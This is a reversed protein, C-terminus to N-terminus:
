KFIDKYKLEIIRYDKSLEKLNISKKDGAITIVLPRNGLNEEYFKSINDINFKNLIAIEEARPDQNFGQDKWRKVQEPLQRFSIYNAEMKHLVSIKAMDFKEPKVPFQAILESMAQCGEITKDAQTGLFGYLFGPRRNLKDYSYGAYASYGLSRLERIEQFIVGAMSGGMYENYGGCAVRQELSELPNGLMYFYINSQLFAKNSALFVTPKDYTEISRIHREGPTAHEKKLITSKLASIVEDLSTNGVYTIYGDYQLSQAFVNLLQYGKVAKLEKLSLQTLYPSNAGYVAYNFLASGWEEANNKSMKDENAKEEILNQLKQEDNGPSYLKQACLKLISNLENDFGSISIRLEEDTSYIDMTAGLQQLQLQFENFTQDETGQLNVYKVASELLPNMLDGYNFAINLSFLDNIPNKSAYLTYDESIRQITVNKNFDIQQPEIETVPMCEISRAFTSQSETNKAVVPKWSPKQLKEQKKIGMNSRFILCDDGFYKNALAVLEEKSLNRIREERAYFNNFDQKDMVLTLATQFKGGTSELDTLYDRLYEKKVAEFLANSYNGKKLDDIAAFILAEADEHSQGVIKPVYFFAFMGKELMGYNFAGCSMIKNENNLQDLLGTESSNSLLGSLIDFLYADANQSGETQFGIVGMKVPTENVTQIQHGKFPAVGMRLDTNMSGDENMYKNDTAGNALENKLKGMHKELMPQIEKANFDGVLVLTMNAPVYFQSFFKQMASTQPNKLHKQYGIVPRGYPHDGYAATLADEMFVSVPQDQYMNYEEYVAELESQFLRFVPYRFREAYVKLWKELQNSPFSNHYCTVDNSTFANVGEGGMKSLIVDVENPIAYETAKNSLQNIKLLIENRQAEDTIEHVKDYLVDISDLYVKEADWDITGIQNTGKFMLHELYHAMGTNDAPDNKAGVHVCMAGYIIPQSHDECLVVDLGNSLRLRQFDAHQAFLSISLLFCFSFLFFRKM